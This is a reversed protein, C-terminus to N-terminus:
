NKTKWSPYSCDFVTCCDKDWRFECINIQKIISLNDDINKLVENDTRYDIYWMDRTYNESCGSLLLLLPILYILRKM